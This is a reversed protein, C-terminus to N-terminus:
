INLAIFYRFFLHHDNKERRSRCFRLETKEGRIKYKTVSIYIYIITYLLLIGAPAHASRESSFTFLHPPVKSCRAVKVIHIFAIKLELGTWFSSKLIDSKETRPAFSFHVGVEAKRGSNKKKKKKKKKLEWSSEQVEWTAWLDFFIFTLPNGPFFTSKKKIKQIKKTSPPKQM